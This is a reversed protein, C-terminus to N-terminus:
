FLDMMREKMPRKAPHTTAQASRKLDHKLRLAILPSTRFGRRPMVHERVDANRADHIHKVLEHLIIHYAPAYEGNAIYERMKGTAVISEITKGSGFTRDGWSIHKGDVVIRHLGSLHSKKTSKNEKVHTIFEVRGGNVVVEIRHRRGEIFVTKAEEMKVGIHM